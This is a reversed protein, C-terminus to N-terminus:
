ECHHSLCPVGNCDADVNCEVCTGAAFSNPDACVKGNNENCPAGLPAPKPDYFGNHCEDITCEEHDDPVDTDDNVTKGFGNGDCVAKRCDFPVQASLPTGAEVNETGCVGGTCKARVCDNHTPACDSAIDCGACHGRGDCTSGGADSCPAGTPANATLCAGGACYAILCATSPKPCESDMVCQAGADGGGEGGGGEGADEIDCGSDPM